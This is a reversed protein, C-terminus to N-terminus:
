FRNSKTVAKVNRKCIFLMEIVYVKRKLFVQFTYYIRFHFYLSNKNM